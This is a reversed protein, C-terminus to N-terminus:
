GTASLAPATEHDQTKVSDTWQQVWTDIHHQALCCDRAYDYLATQCERYYSKDSLANLAHLWDEKTDALHLGPVKHERLEATPTAICPVGFAASEIFKTHPKADNFASTRLPAITVWSQTLQLPMNMFDIWQGQNVYHADLNVDNLGMPGVINLTSRRDSKVFAGIAEEAVSFDRAMRVSDSFYGITRTNPFRPKIHDNHSLWFKSLGNTVVHCPQTPQQARRHKALAETAVTVHDFHQLALNHRMSEARLTALQTPNKDGDVVHKAISPDFLLADFDAVTKVGLKNCRELVSLLKRSAGPRHVCVVDYRSLNALDLTAVLGVDALHGAKLLAEALHYCRYRVSGERYPAKTFRTETLFLVNM